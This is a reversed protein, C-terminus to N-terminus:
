PAIFVSNLGVFLRMTVMESGVVSHFACFHVFVQDHPPLHLDDGLLEVVDHGGKPWESDLPLVVRGAADDLSQFVHMHFLSLSQGM